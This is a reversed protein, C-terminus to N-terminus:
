VQSQGNHWNRHVKGFCRGPTLRSADLFDSLAQIKIAYQWNAQVALPKIMPGSASGAETTETADPHRVGTKSVM